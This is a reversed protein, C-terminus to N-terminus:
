GMTYVSLRCPHVMNSDTETSPHQDLGKNYWLPTWEVESPCRCFERDFVIFKRFEFLETEIPITCVCSSSILSYM